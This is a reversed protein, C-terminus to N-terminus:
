FLNTILNWATERIRSAAQDAQLALSLPTGPPTAALIRSFGADRLAEGDAVAGSILAVPVTGSRRLVGFPVKGALTQADSRGEGTIILDAGQLAEDFGVRDLIEGVGPVLRAGFRVALAGGLGGAAGAGPLVNVDTGTERLMQAALAHMRAELIEVDAPSAGKQPAFMRAAGRPGTFPSDVDCLATVAIGAARELLGPVSAMGAGGDCTASGGLGILLRDCGHGIAELMLEGVGRSTTLLPNRRGDPVLTLGCAAAVEIVATRGAIGYFAQVPTDLPGTVTAVAMRGGLARTLIEATGEGGDALPMEVIEAEPRARRVGAALAAAVERAPLCGKYSDPAVIIKM